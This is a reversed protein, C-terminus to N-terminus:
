LELDPDIQQQFVQLDEWVEQFEPFEKALTEEAKKKYGSLIAKDDENLDYIYEGGVLTAKPLLFAKAYKLVEKNVESVKENYADLKEMLQPLTIDLKECIRYAAQVQDKNSGAM